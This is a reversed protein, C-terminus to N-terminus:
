VRRTRPEIMQPMMTAVANVHKSFTASRCIGDAIEAECSTVSDMSIFRNSNAWPRNAKGGERAGVKKLISRTCATLAFISGNTKTKRNMSVNSAIQMSIQ